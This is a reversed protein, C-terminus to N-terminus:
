NNIPHISVQSLKERERESTIQPVDLRILIWDGDRRTAFQDTFDPGNEDFLPNLTKREGM